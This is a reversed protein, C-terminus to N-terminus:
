TTPAPPPPLVPAPYDNLNVPKHATLVITGEAVSRTTGDDKVGSVRVVIASPIVLTSTTGDVTVTRVNYAGNAIGHLTFEGATITVAYTFKGGGSALEGSRSQERYAYAAADVTISIKDSSILVPTEGAKVLYFRYDASTDSADPLVGVLKWGNINAVLHYKANLYELFDRTNHRDSNFKAQVTANDSPGHSSEDGTSTVALSVNISTELAPVAAPPPTQAFVGTALLGATALLSVLLKTKM